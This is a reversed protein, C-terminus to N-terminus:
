ASIGLLLKCCHKGPRSKERKPVTVSARIMTHTLSGLWELSEGSQYISQMRRYPWDSPGDSRRSQFSYRRLAQFHGGRKAAESFTRWNLTVSHRLTLGPEIKSSGIPFTVSDGFEDSGTFLKLVTAGAASFASHGSIFQPFYGLRAWISATKWIDRIFRSLEGADNAAYMVALAAVVM